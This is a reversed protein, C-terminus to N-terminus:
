FESIANFMDLPKNLNIDFCGHVVANHLNWETGREKRWSFLQTSTHHNISQTIVISQHNSPPIFKSPISPAQESLAKRAPSLHARSPTEQLQSPPEIPACTVTNHMLFNQRTPLLVEPKGYFM